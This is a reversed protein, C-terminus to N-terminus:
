KDDINDIAVLGKNIIYELTAGGGTSLFDFSDEYNFYKVASVGDGGGVVKLANSLSVTKFLDRTGYSFEDDEYKGPTGNVFILKSNDITNKYKEITRSGIDGIVDDVNVNSIDVSRISNSVNSKVIFDVPLQIKDKNDLLLKKLRILLDADDSKLSSGVNYGLTYMCSNALGGALLLNDCIPLLAEILDLKDDVKAGGMIITFPREPNKVVKDLMEIENEVLLGVCNPIYNAVGYTSSHKRHCSGFGDLCFIDALSAYYKSLEEDCSSELKQPVDEYRVNELFLIDRNNLQKTKELVSESRVEKSFIINTDVLQQLRKAVIELSNSVKDEETKVKGLHSMLIIKADHSILYNITALSALIKSDDVIKGDKIPVNYDCRVLVKKGSVDYDRITTKLRIVM